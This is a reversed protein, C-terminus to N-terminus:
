IDITSNITLQPSTRLRSDTSEQSEGGVVSCMSGVREPGGEGGWKGRGVWPDNSTSPPGSSERRRSEPVGGRWGERGRARSVGLGM